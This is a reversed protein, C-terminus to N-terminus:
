VAPTILENTMWQQSYHCAKLLEEVIFPLKVSAVSGTAILVIHLHGPTRNAAATFKLASM